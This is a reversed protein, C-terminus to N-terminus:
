GGISWRFDKCKFNPAARPDSQPANSAVLRNLKRNDPVAHNGDTENLVDRSITRPRSGEM